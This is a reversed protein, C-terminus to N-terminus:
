HPGCFRVNKAPSCYAKTEFLNSKQNQDKLAFYDVKLALFQIVVNMPIFVVQSLLKRLKKSQM